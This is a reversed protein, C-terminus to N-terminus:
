FTVRQCIFCVSLQPVSVLPNCQYNISMSLHSVSVFLHCQCAFCVSSPYLGRLSTQRVTPYCSVHCPLWPVLSVSRYSLVSGLHQCSPGAWGSTDTVHTVHCASLGLLQFQFIAKHQWVWPRSSGSHCLSLTMETMQVGLVSGEPLQTILAHWWCRCFCTCCNLEKVNFNSIINKGRPTVM